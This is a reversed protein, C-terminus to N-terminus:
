KVVFTVVRITLYNVYYVCRIDVNNYLLNSINMLMLLANAVNIKMANVIKIKSYELIETM